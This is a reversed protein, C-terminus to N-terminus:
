HRFFQQTFHVCRVLTFLFRELRFRSDGGKFAAMRYTPLIDRTFTM